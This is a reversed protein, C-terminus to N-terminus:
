GRLEPPVMPCKEAIQAGEDGMTRAQVHPDWAGAQQFNDVFEQKSPLEPAPAGAQELCPVLTLRAYDYLFSLQEDTYPRLSEPNLPYMVDCTYSAISQAEAQDDPPVPSYTIGGDDNPQAPFGLETLCDSVVQAYEGKDVYRVREPSPLEIGPFTGKIHEARSRLFDSTIEGAEAETLPPATPIPPLSDQACGSVSFTASILLM